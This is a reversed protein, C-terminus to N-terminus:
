RASSSQENEGAKIKKYLFRWIYFIVWGMLPMLTAIYYYRDAAFWLILLGAIASPLMICCWLRVEINRFSMDFREGM